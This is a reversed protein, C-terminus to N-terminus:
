VGNTFASTYRSMLERVLDTVTWAAFVSCEFVIARIVERQVVEHVASRNVRALLDVEALVKFLQDLGMSDVDDPGVRHSETWLVGWCGLVAWCLGVCGLM